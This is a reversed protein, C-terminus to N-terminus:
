IGPHRRILPLHGGKSVACGSWQETHSKLELIVTSFVFSGTLNGNFGSIQVQGAFGFRTINTTLAERADQLIEFRCKWLQM